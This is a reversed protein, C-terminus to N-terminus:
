YLSETLQKVLMIDTTKCAWIFIIYCGLILEFNDVLM